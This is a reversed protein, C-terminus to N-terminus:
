QKSITERANKVAEKEEDSLEMEGSLQKIPKAYVSIRDRLYLGSLIIGDGDENLFASSFSQNGGAGVGKFPNFRVTEVARISKKLKKEIENIQKSFINQANEVTKLRNHSDIIVSKIDSKNNGGLIRKIKRELMWIWLILLVLVIALAPIALSIFSQENLFDLQM